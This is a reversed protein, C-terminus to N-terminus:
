ALSISSSTTGTVRLGGPTSPATTDGGGGGGSCSAGNLACNVPDGTGTAVFGFSVSAGAGITRNWDRPKATYHNGGSTILADWYTGLTTGAPLDFTLTWDTIAAAGTNRITYTGTYGTDWASKSFTATATAAFAPQALYVASGAILAAAAGTALFTRISTPTMLAPGKGSPM